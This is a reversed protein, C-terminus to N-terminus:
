TTRRTSTPTASAGRAEEIAACIGPYAGCRCINGSMWERIQDHDGAHGERICAVASMIQGSTCYGCQFGDHRIFAAQVPHLSGGQALGEVTTIRSGEAQRALMLCANVRRGDVHVTCAGCQGHDCGKKTGTLGIRERLADLVTIRSDGEIRYDRGNVNLVIPKGTRAAAAVTRASVPEAAHLDRPLAVAAISCAIASLMFERRTMGFGHDTVYMAALLDDFSPQAADAAIHRWRVIGDRDILFTAQVDGVGFQTAWEPHATADHLLPFQLHEGNGSELEFWFEDASAGVLKGGGPLRALMANYQALQAPRSPDWGPPFFAVIVPQGRLDSLCHREGHADTWEIDPAPEGLNPIPTRVGSQHARRDIDERQM